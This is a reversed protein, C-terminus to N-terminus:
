FAEGISFYFGSSGSQGIGYDARVNLRERRNFQFRLGAGGAAKPHGFDALTYGVDGIGGFVVFGFRRWLPARLEAQAALLQRDRYRGDYYGRLLSIGGLPALERFPVRGDHFTAVAQLALVRTGTANLGIYRRLDATYRQFSWTGGVGTFTAALEAYTGAAPYTLRDRTDLLLVPGLGSVTNRRLEDAPRAQLLPSKSADVDWLSALVYQGGAFLRRGGVRRLLRQNLTVLKYQVLEKDDASNQDGTGYYFIPYDYLRWDGIIAFKEGPTFLSHTLQISWQKEQTYYTLLRSTSKRTATDAGLRFVPAVFIAVGLKTEPSYFLGPLPIFSPKSDSPVPAVARTTDTPTTRQARAPLSM